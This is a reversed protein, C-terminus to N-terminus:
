FRAYIEKIGDASGPLPLMTEPAYSSRGITRTVADIYCSFAGEPSTVLAKPAGLAAPLDPFRDILATDVSVGIQEHQRALALKLFTAVDGHDHRAYSKGFGVEKFGLLLVPVGLEATADLFEATVGLPVSGVVHQAVVKDAAWHKELAKHVALVLGLGKKDLCSVGVGGCRRAVTKVLGEDALWDGSFTTINPVINAEAIMDLIARFQPHKTPEGGGLAVEFVDLDNLHGVITQITALDAHRGNKTSGQYCFRCGAECRDTIKLDVLEPAAAKVYDPADDKFSWRMKNGSSGDFLVFYDGDERLRMSNYSGLLPLEESEPPTHPNSESNDNGGLVIVRPSAFLRVMRDLFSPTPAGLHMVSQHDVHIGDYDKVGQRMAAEGGYLDAFRQIVPEVASSDRYGSVLQAALYRLKAEPSALVFNGWGYSGCPDDRDAITGVLRQPILVMSHSSSSNTAFGARFNHIKM